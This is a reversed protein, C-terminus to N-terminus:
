YGHFAFDLANFIPDAQDRLHGTHERLDAAHHSVMCMIELVYAQQEFQLLPHVGKIAPTLAQPSLPATLRARTGDLFDSSIQVVYPYVKRESEIPNRYVDFQAM